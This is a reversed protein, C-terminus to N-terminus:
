APGMVRVVDATTLPLARLFLEELESVPADNVTADGRSKERELEPSLDTVAPAETVLEITALKVEPEVCSTVKEAEPRGEPAVAEKEVADQLGEQEVTRVIAVLPDVGAPSKETVTVEVPPPTVFVVAKVRLTLEATTEVTAVGVIVGLPALKVLETETVM